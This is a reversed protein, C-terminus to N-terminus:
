LIERFVFYCFRFCCDHGNYKVSSLSVFIISKLSSLSVFIFTEMSLFSEALIYLFLTVVPKRFLFLLHFDISLFSEAVLYPFFTGVPKRFLFLFFVIAHLVVSVAHVCRRM